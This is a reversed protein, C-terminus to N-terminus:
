LKNPELWYKIVFRLATQGFATRGIGLDSQMGQYHVGGKFGARATLETDTTIAKILAARLENLAPGMEASTEGVEILIQPIMQVLQPRDPPRNPRDVDLDIEEDGELLSVVPLQIDSFELRNRVASRVGATVTAIALLRQMIQERRDAM